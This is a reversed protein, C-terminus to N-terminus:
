DDCSRYLDPSPLNKWYGRLYERELSLGLQKHLTTGIDIYTNNEFDKFLQHILVESLSSAAFLFVHDSIDNDGIWVKIVDILHHDNVICNKGVRFDKVIELGTNSLDAQESCVIVIKKKKLEKYLQGMFIPYNSNVLLNAYTYQSDPEGYKEHMWDAYERSACDCNRCIGGVFYNNKKFTYAELLRDKVFEHEEPDYHKHDDESYGFNHVVDGTKVYKSDLILEKNQMILIEGDSFRTFAFHENSKLKSLFRFIDAKFKM